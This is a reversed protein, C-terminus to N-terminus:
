QLYLQTKACILVYQVFQGTIQKWFSFDFFCSKYCDQVDKWTLIYLSWEKLGNGLIGQLLHLVKVIERNLMQTAKIKETKFFATVATIIFNYIIIWM